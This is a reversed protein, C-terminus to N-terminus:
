LKKPTNRIEYQNPRSSQADIELKIRRYDITRLQQWRCLEASRRVLVANATAATAGWRHMCVHFLPFHHFYFNSILLHPSQASHLRYQCHHNASVTDKLETLRVLPLLAPVLSLRRYADHLTWHMLAHFVDEESSVVLHDSHLYVSLKDTPVQAFGDCRSVSGFNNLVYETATDALSTLGYRNALVEVFCCSEANLHCLLFASCAEIVAHFELDIAVKLVAAVTEFSLELGGTYCCTVLMKLVKGDIDILHIENDAIPKITDEIADSTAAAPTAKTKKKSNSGAAPAKSGSAANVTGSNSSTAVNKDGDTVEDVFSSWFFASSAALM